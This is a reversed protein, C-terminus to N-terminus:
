STAAPEAAAEKITTDNRTRPLRKSQPTTAPEPRGRREYRPEDRPDGVVKATHRGGASQGLGGGFRQQGVEPNRHGLLTENRRGSIRPPGGAFETKGHNGLEATVRDGVLGLPTENTKPEGIHGGDFRRRRVQQREGTGFVTRYRHEDRRHHDAVTFEDGADDAILLEARTHHQADTPDQGFRHGVNHEPWCREISHRGVLHDFIERRLSEEALEATLGRDVALRQDVNEHTESAHRGLPGIHAADVHVREDNAGITSRNGDVREHFDALGLGFTVFESGSRGVGLESGEELRPSHHDGTRRGM